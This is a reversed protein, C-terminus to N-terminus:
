KSIHASPRDQPGMIKARHKKFPLPTLAKTFIGSENKKTDVEIVKIIRHDCSQRVYGQGIRYHKATAHNIAKTSQHRVGDNDCAANTDVDQPYGLDYLIHRDWVIEKILRVMAYTESQGTSTSLKRELASWCSINGFEGM